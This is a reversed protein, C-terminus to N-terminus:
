GEPPGPLEDPRGWTVRERQFTVLGPRGGKLKRVHRRETYVVPVHASGRAQSFHAALNAAWQVESPEPVAGSGVRLVVHSGPIEQAHFWLDDAGAVEFTLRDNQRNNRGVLVVRGGPLAFRHFEVPAQATAPRSERALYGQERLEEEVEALADADGPGDLLDVTASVQELYAVEQAAQERLPALTRTARKGKRHRRYYEQANAVLDKAPDLVITVPVGTEFDALVIERRGPEDASLHAMLLDARRKHEEAQQAGTAMRDFDALRKRAKGLASRLVQALRQRRNRLAEGAVATGYYRDLLRMLDREPCELTLGVVTYGGDRTTGPQFKADRLCSLWACWLRYVRLWEQEGLGDTRAAPLRAETLMQQVLVKSV